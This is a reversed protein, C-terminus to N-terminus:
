RTRGGGRMAHGAGSEASPAPMRALQATIRAALPKDSVILDILRKSTSAAAYAAIDDPDPELREVGDFRRQCLPALFRIDAEARERVAMLLALGRADLAPEALDSGPLGSAFPLRATM